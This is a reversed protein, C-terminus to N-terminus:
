YLRINIIPLVTEPSPEYLNTVALLVTLLVALVHLLVVNVFLFPPSGAITCFCGAPYFCTKFLDVLCFPVRCRIFFPKGGKNHNGKITPQDSHPDPGIVIQGLSRILRRLITQKSTCVRTGFM